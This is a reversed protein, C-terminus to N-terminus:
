QEEGECIINYVSSEGIWGIIQPSRPLYTVKDFSVRKQVLRMRGTSALTGSTKGSYVLVDATCDITESYNTENGWRTGPPYACGSLLLAVVVLLKKMM